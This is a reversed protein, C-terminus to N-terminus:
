LKLKNNLILSISSNEKNFFNLQACNFNVLGSVALPQWMFCNLEVWKFSLLEVPAKTKIGNISIGNWICTHRTIYLLYPSWFYARMYHIRMYFVLSWQFNSSLNWFLGNKLRMYEFKCIFLSCIVLAEQLKNKQIKLDLMLILERCHRLIRDEM